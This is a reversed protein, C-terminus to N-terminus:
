GQRCISHGKRGVLVAAYGDRAESVIDRAIGKKREHIHTTVAQEPFGADLLTKKARAMFDHREKELQALWARAEKLEWDLRPEAHIDWYCDPVKSYVTYLAVEMDQFPKVAAVYKVAELARDSGDIAVLIKKKDEGM